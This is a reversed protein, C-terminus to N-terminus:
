GHRASISGRFTMSATSAIRRVGERPGDALSSGAVSASPTGAHPDQEPVYVTAPGIGEHPASMFIQEGGTRLATRPAESPSATVPRGGRDFDGRVGKTIFGDVEDHQLAELFELEGLAQESPAEPRFQGRDEELVVRRLGGGHRGPVREGVAAVDRDHVDRVEVPEGPVVAVCGGEDDLV